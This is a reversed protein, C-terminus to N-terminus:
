GLADGSSRDSFLACLKSKPNSTDEPNLPHARYYPLVVTCFITERPTVGAIILYHFSTRLRVSVEGGGRFKLSSELRRAGM